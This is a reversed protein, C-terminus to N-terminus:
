DASWIKNKKFNTIDFLFMDVEEPWNLHYVKYAFRSKSIGNRKHRELLRYVLWHRMLRGGM